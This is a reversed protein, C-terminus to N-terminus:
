PRVATHVTQASLLFVDPRRLLGAEDDPDLLRGLTTLDEADLRDGLVEHFRTLEAHLHARVRADAPAPLDLLFTRSRVHGLGAARLMAPWDEVTDATEPLAGRMAAFWDEMVADLRAELGPRGIGIDRPLRRTPLGGEAVALLGGPRLREALSALAARQDGMHHVTKSTWILEATGAGCLGGPLDATHTRLRYGIGLRMARARARRLLADEGDVALVEAAPFAQALRCAAVGPGSGVDWVQGIAAARESGLLDDRLWAIAQDLAPTNIEAGQELLPALEEWDLQTHDHHHHSAM